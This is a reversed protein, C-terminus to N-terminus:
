WVSELLTTLAEPTALDADPASLHALEASVATAVRPIETQVASTDRLRRPVSLTDLFREIGPAAGEPSPVGMAQAIHRQSEATRPHLFRAAAPLAICSTVGHPVNWRAGIQHGLPHSLRFGVNKASLLGLISKWAAHQCTLRAELADPDKSEALCRRLDAIAGLRLTELMPHCGPWWVGEIAHDLAKVGTTVWLDPPTPRTLLPDYLIVEPQMAPDVYVHKVRTSEDTMGAAHTFEGASLTTPIVVQRMPALRNQTARWAVLKATDIPSGGGFVVLCNARQSEAQRYANEVSSTPVHQACEAFTGVHRDGILDELQQVLPTKTALTRGTLVLIREAGVSDLLGPLEALAGIGSVVRDPGATTFDFIESM